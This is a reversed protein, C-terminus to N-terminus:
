GQAECEVVAMAMQAFEGGWSDDLTACMVATMPRSPLASSRHVLIGEKKVEMIRLMMPWGMAACIEHVQNVLVELRESTRAVVQSEEPPLDGLANMREKLLEIAEKLEKDITQCSCYPDFCHM